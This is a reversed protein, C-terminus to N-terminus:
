GLRIDPQALLWPTSAPASRRHGPDRRHRRPLRDRVPVTAPPGQADGHQYTPRRMPAERLMLVAREFDIAFMRAARESRASYWTVAGTLEELADSDFRVNM